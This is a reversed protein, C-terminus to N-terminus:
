PARQTFGMPLYPAGPHYADMYLMAKKGSGVFQIDYVDLIVYGGRAVADAKGCCSGRREYIVPEGQPGRLSNLFLIHGGAEIPGTRIPKDEAYGYDPDAAARLRFTKLYAGSDSRGNPVGKGAQVLRSTIVPQGSASPLPATTCGALLLAAAAAIWPIRRQKM